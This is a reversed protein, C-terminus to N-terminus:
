ASSRMRPSSSGSCQLPPPHAPINLVLDNYLQNLALNLASPPPPPLPDETTLVGPDIPSRPSKPWPPIPSYTWAPQDYDSSPPPNASQIGEPDFFAIPLPRLYKCVTCRELSSDVSTSTWIPHDCVSQLQVRILRRATRKLKLSNRLSHIHVTTTNLLSYLQDRKIHDPDSM